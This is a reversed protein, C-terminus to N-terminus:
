SSDMLGPVKLELDELCAKSAQPLMIICGGACYLLWKDQTRSIAGTPHTGERYIGARM